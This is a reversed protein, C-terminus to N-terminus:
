WSNSDSVAKARKVNPKTWTRGVGLFAAGGLLSLVIGGGTLLLFIGLSPEGHSRGSSVYAIGVFANGVLILCAASASGLIRRPVERM